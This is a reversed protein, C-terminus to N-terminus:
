ILFSFPITQRQSIMTYYNSFNHSFTLHMNFLSRHLMSRHCHALWLHFFPALLNSVHPVNISDHHSNPTVDVWWRMMSFASSAYKTLEVPSDLRGQPKNTEFVTHKKPADKTGQYRYKSRRLTDNYLTM